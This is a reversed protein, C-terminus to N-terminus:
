DLDYSIPSLDIMLNKRMADLLKEDVGNYLTEVLEEQRPQGFTLRYLTLTALLHRLQNVEKSYPLIPVIREIFIGDGEVHWFPVLHPKVPEVEGEVERAVNFLREWVPEDSGVLSSMYKKVINQRIVLGKFRNIRGERQEFDIPNSPLNWHVLKRCYYHFDLGEQGISTSALVFPRFPSNFNDLISTIRNRGEEKDMDQNGFDVAFHCRMTRTEGSLFTEASDVKVNTTNINLTTCIREALDWLNNYDPRILHAYEDIVAQINGDVCYTLADRWYGKITARRRKTKTIKNLQIVSISEPKDFLSQFESGIDLAENFIETYPQEPFIQKLTRMACVAPSGLAMSVLVDVLDAPLSGLSFSSPDKVLEKLENLHHQAASLDTPVEDNDTTKNGSLFYSYNYHINNLCNEVEGPHLERDILVPAAWYWITSRGGTCYKQLDAQDILKQIRDSLITRIESLDKPKESRVNEVPNYIESLSISPYLLTFTTMRGVKGKQMQIALLKTPRRPPRKKDGIKPATYVRKEEGPKLLRKDSITLREAEYSLLSAIMKPVMVWKSFILTKSNEESGVFVGQMPYYPLSPALWLQKWLGSGISHEMMYRMKANPIKGLPKYDQIKEWDIWGKSSKIVAAKVSKKRTESDLIKKVKYSDLYSFPYPSSKAFELVSRVPITSNERLSQILSDAYLFDNVDETHLRLANHDTGYKLQDRVLTNKDDSVILRETRSIVKRYLEELKLKCEPPEILSLKEPRRLLEFFEKRHHEYEKLLNKDKILFHLVTLFEKYHDEDFEVDTKTTFPKFPTASLMLVKAGKVKFVRNAIHAAESWDEQPKDRTDILEKFRQFEDLIFLDAELFGVCVNTLVKRLLSVLIPLGLYNWYNNSQLFESYRIIATQLSIERNIGLEDYIVRYKELPLMEKKVEDRFKPFVDPRLRPKNTGIYDDINDRWSQVSRRVPRKLLLKLGNYRRGECYMKYHSLIAFILKREDERGSGNVFKFSTSPTLSTLRFQGTTNPKYAYFILRSYETDIFKDDNFINLKKLNQGALAQNSCIYVVKYAKDKKRSKIHREIARAILGKAVITKGLGVEDAVLHKHEGEEFLRKYVTNVTKLQFDKLQQLSSQIINKIEQNDM